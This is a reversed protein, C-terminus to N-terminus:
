VIYPHDKTDSKMWCLAKLNMWSTTYIVEEKKHSLLIRHNRPLELPLSGAQWHLLHLNMGQTLFIGQLLFHCGVGNRAQSIGHVSFDPLSCVQARWGGGGGGGWWPCLIPCLKAVSCLIRHYPYENQKDMWWSISMQTTEIKSSNHIIRNCVNTYLKKSFM